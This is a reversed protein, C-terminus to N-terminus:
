NRLSNEIETYRIINITASVVGFYFWVIHVYLLTGFSSCVIISILGAFPGLILMKLYDSKALKLSKIARRFISVIILFFCTFGFIGTEALLTFWSSHAEFPRSQEGSWALYKYSGPMEFNNIGIGVLPNSKFVRL